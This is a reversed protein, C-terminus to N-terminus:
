YNVEIAREVRGAVNECTNYGRSEIRTTPVGADYGKIVTVVACVPSPNFTLTFTSTAQGGVLQNENGFNLYDMHCGITATSSTSFASRDYIDGGTLDWMLACEVGSDAAYFAAQSDRSSQALYLQKIAINIISYSVLLLAGTIIIAVYIAIGRQNESSYKKKHQTDM